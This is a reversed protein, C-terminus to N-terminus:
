DDAYEWKFGYATLREGRCCKGINGERTSCGVYEQAYKIADFVIGHEVLRVKKFKKKNIGNVIDRGGRNDNERWTTLQINDFSYSKYDDIRDISPRTYKDYGSAEWDLYLKEFNNQDFMWRRLETLNYSPSMHGRRKSSQKQSHYIVGILGNRTKRILSAKENLEDKNEAHRKKSYERRDRKM